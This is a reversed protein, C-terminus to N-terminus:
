DFKGPAQRFEDACTTCCFWHSVGSADELRVAGLEEATEEEFTVGCVVDRVEPM